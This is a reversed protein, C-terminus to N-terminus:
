PFHWQDIKIVCTCNIEILQRPSPGGIGYIASGGLAAAYDVETM